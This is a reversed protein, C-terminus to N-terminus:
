MGGVGGTIVSGEDEGVVVSCRSGRELMLELGSGRCVEDECGDM